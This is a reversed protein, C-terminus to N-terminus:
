QIKIISDKNLNKSILSIVFEHVSKLCNVKFVTKQLPRIGSPRKSSFFEDSIDFINMAECVCVAFIIHRNLIRHMHKHSFISLGIFKKRFSRTSNWRLRTPSTKM